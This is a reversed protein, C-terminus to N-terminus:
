LRSYDLGMDKLETRIRDYFVMYENTPTVRELDYIEGFRKGLPANSIEKEYKALLRKVFTNAESRPMGMRAVIHGAEAGARMELTSVREPYKDRAIGGLVLNAGSVTSAVAHAVMEYFLMETMPGAAAMAVSLNLLHTNRAIAQSYVSVLWLMEFTTNCVQHIDIPFPIHYDARFALVGLFFHAVLNIM